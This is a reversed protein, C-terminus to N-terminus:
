TASVDGKDEVIKVATAPDGNVMFVVGHNMGISKLARGLAAGDEKTVARNDLVVLYRFDADLKITHAEVLRVEPRM